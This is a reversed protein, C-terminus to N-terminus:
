AVHYMNVLGRSLSFVLNRSVCVDLVPTPHAKLPIFTDDSKLSSLDWAVARNTSEDCALACLNTNEMELLVARSLVRSSRHGCLSHKIEFRDSGLEFLVCRAKEGRMAALGMVNSSTTNSTRIMDVASCSGRLMENEEFLHYEEQDKRWFEVGGVKGVLIGKNCERISHIPQRCGFSLSNLARSTNRLDYELVHGMRLGAYCVHENSPSWECEWVGSGLDKYTLVANDTGTIELARTQTKHIRADIKKKYLLNHLTFSHNFNISSSECRVFIQSEFHPM